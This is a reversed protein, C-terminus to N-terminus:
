KSNLFKLLDSDLSGDESFQQLAEMLNKELIEEESQSMKTTVVMLLLEFGSKRVQPNRIMMLRMIQAVFQVLFGTFEALTEWKSTLVEVARLRQDGYRQWIDRRKIVPMSELSLGKSSLVNLLIAFFSQWGERAEGLTGVLGEACKLVANTAMMNMEIWHDPYIGSTANSCIALAALAEPRSLSSYHSSDMSYLLSLFSTMCRIRTTGSSEEVATLFHKFHVVINQLKFGQWL